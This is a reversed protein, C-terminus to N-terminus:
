ITFDQTSGEPRQSGAKARQMKATVYAKLNKITRHKVTYVNDISIRMTKAIEPATLEHDFHLKCFLRYKAPLSRIAHRLMKVQDAKELMALVGATEDSLERICDLGVMERRCAISDLGRKRLQNLVIRLAVLRVWTALSCGNRGEFQALKKCDNEFLNLFVTNHLDSVDDPTYPAQRNRLTYQVTRYVLDSYRRVFEEAANRDGAICKLRLDADDLRHKNM